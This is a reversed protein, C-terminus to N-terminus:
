AITATILDETLYTDGIPGLVDEVREQKFRQSAYKAKTEQCKAYFKAYFRDARKDDGNAEFIKAIAFDPLFKHEPTPIIPSPLIMSTDRYSYWIKIIGHEIPERDFRIQTGEIWYYQPYGTINENDTDTLATITGMSYPDLKRGDFEVRLENLFLTDLDYINTLVGGNVDETDIEQIQFICDTERIFENEADRLLAKIDLTNEVNEVLLLVDSKLEDYTSM